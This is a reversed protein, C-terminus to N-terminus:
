RSSAGSPPSSSGPPRTPAAPGIPSGEGRRRTSRWIEKGTEPELAVVRDSAAVYMVGAVVIPTYESGGSITGATRDKGLKYSWAPALTGVNRTNIQTLPSHRTGALDYNYMPWDGSTTRLAKQATVGVILTLAIATAAIVLRGSSWVVLNRRAM